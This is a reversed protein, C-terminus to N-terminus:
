PVLHRNQGRGFRNEPGGQVDRNRLGSSLTTRYAQCTGHHKGYGSRLRGLADRTSGNLPFAPPGGRKRLGGRKNQRTTRSAGGGGGGGWGTCVPALSNRLPICIALTINQFYRHGHARPLGRPGAGWGGLAGVLSFTNLQRENGPPGQPGASEDQRHRQSCEQDGGDM